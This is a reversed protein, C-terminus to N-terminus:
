IQPTVLPKLLGAKRRDVVEQMKVRVEPTLEREKLFKELEKTTYSGYLSTRGSDM